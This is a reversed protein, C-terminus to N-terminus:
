CSMMPGRLHSGIDRVLFVVWHMVFCELLEYIAHLGTAGAGAHFTPCAHESGGVATYLRLDEEDGLGGSAEPGVLPADREISVLGTAVELGEQTGGLNLTVGDEDGVGDEAVGTVFM